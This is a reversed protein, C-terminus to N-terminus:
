SERQLWYARLGAARAGLYDERYSDGVHWARDPTVQQSALAAAFIRPDPKAAGVESSSTISSFLPKLELAELVAHLRADFNSVIGLAVGRDRWRELAPLVDPYLFWAAPTAFYDFLSVFRADFDDFQAITGNATFTARAVDRWWLYEHRPLAEPLVGPFACPPAARFARVFDADLADPDAEVGLKRALDSYIQGVSGRVGFLTGVADFFIVDPHQM